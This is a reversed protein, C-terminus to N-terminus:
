MVAFIAAPTGGPLKGLLKPLAEVGGASCGVVVIDHAPGGNNERVGMRLVIWSFHWKALADVGWFQQLPRRLGHLFPCGGEGGRKDHLNARNNKQLNNIKLINPIQLYHLHLPNEHFHSENAHNKCSKQVFKQVFKQVTQVPITSLEYQSGLSGGM